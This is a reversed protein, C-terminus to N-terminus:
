GKPVYDVRMVRVDGAMDVGGEDHMKPKLDSKRALVSARWGATWDCWSGGPTPCSQYEQRVLGSVSPLGTTLYITYKTDGAM